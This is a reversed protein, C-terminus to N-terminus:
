LHQRRSAKSASELTAEERLILASSGAHPLMLELPFTNLCKCHLKTISQKARVCEAGMWSGVGHGSTQSVNGTYIREAIVRGGSLWLLENYGKCECVKQESDDGGDVQCRRACHADGHSRNLSATFSKV